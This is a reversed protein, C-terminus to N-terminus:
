KDPAASSRGKVCMGVRAASEPDSDAAILEREVLARHLDPETWSAVLKFGRDIYLEAPLGGMFKMAARDPPVCKAVIADFGNLESWRLFYDLLGLGIGRGQYQPDRGPGEELQGVHYCFIGLTADPLEPGRDGFDGWYDPSFIGKDSRLDPRHRRFQLQGVHKQGDFALIAAAGLDRIRAVLAEREGHCDTPVRGIDELTMPRYFIVGSTQAATM